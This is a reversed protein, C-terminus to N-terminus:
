EEMKEALTAKLDARRAEYEFRNLKGAEFAQDLEAIQRILAEVEPQLGEEAEGASWRRRQVILLVAGGIVVVGLAVGLVIQLTTRGSLAPRVTFSLMSGPSLNQGLYKSYAAGSIVESGAPNLQSSSIQRGEPALVTIQSTQYLLPVTIERAGDAPLFYSVIVTHSRSGPTMQQLDYILDGALVFRGGLEGEEFQVGYAGEPLAIAVGGRRGGSIPDSSVFVRDSSNSFVYLQVILLADPHDRIVFHMADVTIVSPDTTPEYITIPLDVSSVAPDVRIGNAFEVGNYIVSVVYASDPNDMPLNTFRFSGNAAVPTTTTVFEVIDGSEDLRLGSLKVELGAPLVAGATANTVVGRVVGAEATAAPEAEAEAPPVAEPAAPAEVQAPATLSADYSFTRVYAAAAWRQDESLQDGFVHIGDGGDTIYRDYIDQLSLSSMAAPDNLGNQEGAEGHCAACQEAYVAQGKDLMEQPTSLSYLYYTVDWREADTLAQGWPPMLGGSAVTGNTIIHYWAQPSRTRALAPDTLDPLQGGQQVVQESLTGDGAGRLGHCSACRELFILAGNAASPLSAPTELQAGPLPGTQIPGAPVPESALTCGALVAASLVLAL